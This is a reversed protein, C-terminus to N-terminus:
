TTQGYRGPRIRGMRERLAERGGGYEEWYRLIEPGEVEGEGQVEWILQFDVDPSVMHLERERPKGLPNHIYRIDQFQFDKPRHSHGFAHLQRSFHSQVSRIQQDLWATGAVKAFKASMGAAGHDLWEMRFDESASLDKWDPLSQLNPLFHSVTLLASAQSESGTRQKGQQLKQEIEVVTSLLPENVEDHFYDVLGDPIKANPAPLLPFDHRPWRCRQFDVWPWSGFDHCLEENFSLTGDYWSQLPVIWLPHKGTLYLADVYVELDRCVREVQQLKELSDMEDDQRVWAEHNGPLFFVQCKNRMVLLSEELRDLEHSIDGPVVLLDSQTLDSGAIQDRIWKMNNVHDTHLDSLCFVRHINDLQLISENNNDDAASAAFSTAAGLICRHSRTSRHRSMTAGTRQVVHQWLRSCLSESECVLMLILTLVRASGHFCGLCPEDGTVSM